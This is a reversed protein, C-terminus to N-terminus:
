LLREGAGTDVEFTFQKGNMEICTNLQPIKTQLLVSRILRKRVPKVATGSSKTRCAAQIHGKRKCHNCIADKFRCKDALHDPKGCRFCSTSSKAPKSSHKKKRNMLSHVEVAKAGYVTEKAVKAAEEIEVAMKVAHEFSLDTDKVKFLAKVVAESNM